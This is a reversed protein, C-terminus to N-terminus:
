SLHVHVSSILYSNDHLHLCAYFSFLKKPGVKYLVTMLENGIWNILPRTLWHYVCVIGSFGRGYENEISANTLLFSSLSTVMQICHVKSYEGYTVPGHTLSLFEAM